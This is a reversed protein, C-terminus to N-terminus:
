ENTSLINQTFKTFYLHHYKPIRDYNNIDQVVPLVGNKLVIHGYFKGVLSERSPSDGNQPSFAGLQTKVLAANGVAEMVTSVKLIREVM